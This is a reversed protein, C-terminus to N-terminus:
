KLGPILGDRRKVGTASFLILFGFGSYAIHFRILNGASPNAPNSTSETVALLAVFRDAGHRVVVVRYLRRKFASLM